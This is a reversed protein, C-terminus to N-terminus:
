KRKAQAKGAAAQAGASQFQSAAQTLKPIAKRIEGALQTLTTGLNAIKEDIFNENEQLFPLLRSYLMQAGQLKPSWLFCVFLMKAIYYILGLWSLAWEIYSDVIFFIAFVVWYRMWHAMFEKSNSELAKYTNYAPYVFGVASVVHSALWATAM